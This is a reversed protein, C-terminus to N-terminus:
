LLDLDEVHMSSRYRPKANSISQPHLNPRVKSTNNNRSSRFEELLKEEPLKKAKMQYYDDQDDEYQSLYEEEESLITQINHQGSSTPSHSYVGQDEEEAYDGEAYDDEFEEVIDEENVFDEDPLYDEEIEEVELEYEPPLFQDQEEIYMEEESMRPPGGIFNQDEQSDPYEALQDYFSEERESERGPEGGGDEYQERNRHYNEESDSIQHQDTPQDEEQFGQSIFLNAQPEHLYQDIDNIVADMDNYESLELLKLAQM